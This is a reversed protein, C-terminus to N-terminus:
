YDYVDSVDDCCDYSSNFPESDLLWYFTYILRPGPLGLPDLFLGLSYNSEGFGVVMSGVLSFFRANGLFIIEADCLWYDWDTDDCDASEIEYFLLIVGTYFCFFFLFYSTVSWDDYSGRM